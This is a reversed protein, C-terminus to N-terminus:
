GCSNGTRNRFLIFIALATLVGVIASTMYDAAVLERNLRYEVLLNVVAAAVGGIAASLALSKKSIKDM